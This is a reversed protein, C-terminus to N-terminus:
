PTAYTSSCARLPQQAREAQAEVDQTHIVRLSGLNNEPHVFSPHPAHLPRSRPPPPLSTVTPASGPSRSPTPTPPTLLEYKSCLKHYHSVANASEGPMGAQEIFPANPTSNRSDKERTSRKKISIVSGRCQSTRPPVRRPSSPSLPARPGTRAAPPAFGAAHRRGPRPPPPRRAAINVIGPGPREGTAENGGGAGREGRASRLLGGGSLPCPASPRRTPVDSAVRHFPLSPPPSPFGRSPAGPLRSLVASCRTTKLHRKNLISRQGFHDKKIRRHGIRGGKLGRTM